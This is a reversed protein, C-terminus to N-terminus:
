QCGVTSRVTMSPVKWCAQHAHKSSLQPALLSSIIPLCMVRMAALSEFSVVVAVQPVGADPPPALCCLLCLHLRLHLLQESFRSQLRLM